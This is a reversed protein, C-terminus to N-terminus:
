TANGTAARVQPPATVKGVLVRTGKPVYVTESVESWPTNVWWEGFDFEDKPPEKQQIRMTVDDELQHPKPRLEPNIPFNPDELTVRVRYRYMKGPQATFDFYRFLKYDVPPMPLTAGPMAMNDGYGY